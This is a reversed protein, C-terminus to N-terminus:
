LIKLTARAGLMKTLQFEPIRVTATHRVALRLFCTNLLIHLDYLCATGDHQSKKEPGRCKIGDLRMKAAPVRGVSGPLYTM